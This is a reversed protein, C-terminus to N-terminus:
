IGGLFRRAEPSLNLDQFHPRLLQPVAPEKIPQSPVAKSQKEPARHRAIKFILFLFIQEGFTGKLKNCPGCCSQCNAPIYGIRNDRRDIGRPESQEGCFVCAQEVIKEFQELTLTFALHRQM